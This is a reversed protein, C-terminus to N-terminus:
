YRLSKMSVYGHLLYYTLKLSEQIFDNIGEAKQWWLDSGYEIFYPCPSIHLGVRSGEKNYVGFSRRTHFGKSLLIASQVGNQSLKVVVFRAETLTIPHGDIPASIVQIREKEMGLNQLENMILQTYRDELAFVQNERSPHHLVVVMRRVKGQALLGMGANLAGKKVVETGELIVVEARENSTPALFRGVGNLIPKYFSLCFLVVVLFLATYLFRKPRLKCGKLNLRGGEPNETKM